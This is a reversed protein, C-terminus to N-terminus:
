RHGTTKGPLASRRRQAEIMQGLFAQCLLIPYFIYPGGAIHWQLFPNGRRLNVLALQKGQGALVVVLIHSKGSALFFPMKEKDSREQELRAGNKNNREMQAKKLEGNKAIVCCYFTDNHTRDYFLFLFKV